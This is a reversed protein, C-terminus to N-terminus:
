ILTKIKLVTKVLYLEIVKKIPLEFDDFNANQSKLLYTDKTGKRIYKILQM